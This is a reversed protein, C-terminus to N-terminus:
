INVQWSKELCLIHRIRNYDWNLVKLTDLDWERGLVLHTDIESRVLYVFHTLGVGSVLYLFTHQSLVM